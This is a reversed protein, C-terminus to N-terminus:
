RSTARYRALERNFWAASEVPSADGCKVLYPKGSVSSKSAAQEVFSEATSILGKKLLYEYKRHLHSVAASSTHWSGNRYFLCGSSELHSFLHTIENRGIVDPESAWTLSSFLVALAIALRKM